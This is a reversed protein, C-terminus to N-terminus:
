FATHYDPVGGRHNVDEHSHGNHCGNNGDIARWLMNWVSNDYVNRHGIDYGYAM